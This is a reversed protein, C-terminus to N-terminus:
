TWNVFDINDLDDVILEMSTPAVPEFADFDGAREVGTGVGYGPDFAAAWDRTQAAGSATYIVAFRGTAGLLQAPDVLVDELHVGSHINPDATLLVIGVGLNGANLAAAPPPQRLTIRFANGAVTGEGFLYTYDEGTSSVVWGIIVRANAPIPQGTPNVVSGGVTLLGDSSGTPDDGCGATLPLVLALLLATPHWYATSRM